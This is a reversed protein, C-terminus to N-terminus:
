NNQEHGLQVVFNVRHVGTAKKHIQIRLAALSEKVTHVRIGKGTM